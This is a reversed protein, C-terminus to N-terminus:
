LRKRVQNGYLIDVNRVFMINGVIRQIHNWHNLNQEVIFVTAKTLPKERKLNQYLKLESVIFAGIWIVIMVLFLSVGFGQM